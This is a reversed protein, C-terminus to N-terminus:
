NYNVTVTLDETNTYNGAAQASAVTLTAGVSIVQTGTNLQGTNAPDSVVASVGMTNAADDTLDFSASPLQISYTYDSEGGITFQAANFTGTTAPLTVGLAGTRDGNTDLVVTGAVTSSVAINGFLLGANSTAISIPTVVTSSATATASEQAFATTSVAMSVAIIAIISNIKRMTNNIKPNTLEGIKTSKKFFCSSM